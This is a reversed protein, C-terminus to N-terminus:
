RPDAAPADRGRPRSRRRRGTRSAAGGARGDAARGADAALKQDPGDRGPDRGAGPRARHPQRVRRGAGGPSVDMGALLTHIRGLIPLGRALRPPSNMRGDHPVFREVEALRDGAQAWRAGDRARVLASCPVGAQDLNDRVAQIDELRAPSVSPRHVRAVLREDGRHVLLNLNLSGGLDRGRQRPIAWRAALMEWLQGSAVAGPAACAAARTMWVPVSRGAM